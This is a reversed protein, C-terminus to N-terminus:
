INRMLLFLTKYLGIIQSVDYEQKNLEDRLLFRVFIDILNDKAILYSTKNRPSNMKYCM